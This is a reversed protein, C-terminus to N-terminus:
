PLCARIVTSILSCIIHKKQDTAWIVTLHTILLSSYNAKPYYKRRKNGLWIVWTLSVFHAFNSLNSLLFINKIWCGDVGILQGNWVLEKICYLYLLSIENPKHLRKKNKCIAPVKNKLNKIAFVSKLALLSKWASIQGFAQIKDNFKIGMSAQTKTPRESKSVYTKTEM